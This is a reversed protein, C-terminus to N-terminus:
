GSRFRRLYGGSLKPRHCHRILVVPEGRYQWYFRNEAYPQIRARDRAERDSPAIPPEACGAFMGALLMSVALHAPRFARVDNM